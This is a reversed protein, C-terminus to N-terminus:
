TAKIDDRHISCLTALFECRGCSSSDKQSVMNVTIKSPGHKPIEVPINLPKPPWTDSVPKYNERYVEKDKHYISNFRPRNPDRM